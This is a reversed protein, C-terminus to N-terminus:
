FREHGFYQMVGVADRAMSRKSYNSHDALGRPKDSDGYGRLDMLVVSYDGALAPAVKHWMVSTQPYGHLLLVPPGSGASRVRIRVDGLPLDDSAFHDLMLLGEGSARVPGGALVILERGWLM